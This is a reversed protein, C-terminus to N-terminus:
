LGWRQILNDLQNILDFTEELEEHDLTSNLSNRYFADRSKGLLIYLRLDRRGAEVDYAPIKSVESLVEDWGFDLQKFYSLFDEQAERGENTEIDCEQIRAMVYLARRRSFDTLPDNKSLIEIYDEKHINKKVEEKVSPVKPAEKSNNKNNFLFYAVTGLAVAAGGFILGKKM